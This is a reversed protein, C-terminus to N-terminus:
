RWYEPTYSYHPPVRGLPTTPDINEFFLVVTATSDRPIVALPGAFGANSVQTAEGRVMLDFRVIRGDELKLHGLLEARKGTQSIAVGTISGDNISLKVEKM